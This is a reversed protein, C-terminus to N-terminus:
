NLSNEFYKQYIDDLGHEKRQVGMVEYGKLVFLRVIEPTNDHSCTVTIERENVGLQKVGDLQLFESEHEWPLTLNNRLTVLVEFSKREFINKSLTDMNGEVLLKGKVFIGVRDCVQQVHHLHHSSLLVTLGQQRSLQRILTLFEKVGSPDIGLTPEDLIVVDPQKILVDALGLRQKMGRSYASTKKDIENELGVMRMVSLAREKIEAQPIGNLEGVYMLNELATMNDYFGLSDPMYGVKRKVPIPSTTANYGCVHATGATPETLGLMMLITTTKGAGNPGLLGFIEGKQINLNLDDVAKVSGYCKTLGRLEIIPNEM